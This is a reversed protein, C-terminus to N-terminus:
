SWKWFFGYAQRAKGNAVAAINSVGHVKNLSRLANRCSLHTAIFDGDLTMQIVSKSKSNLFEGSINQLRLNDLNARWTVLQINSLSYSELNNIRDVSPSKWKSYGSDVWDDYLSKFQNLYAWEILEERTYTPLHRGTRKCTGVQNNYIKLLLGRETRNTETVAKVNCPKCM